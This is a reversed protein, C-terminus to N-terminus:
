KKEESDTEKGHKSVECVRDVFREFGIDDLEELDEFGLQESLLNLMTRADALAIKTEGIYGSKGFREQYVMLKHIDGIEYTLIRATLEPPQNVGQGVFLDKYKYM